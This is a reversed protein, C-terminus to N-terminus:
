KWDNTKLREQWKTPDKKEEFVWLSKLLLLANPCNPGIKTSLLTYHNVITSYREKFFSASEEKSLLDRMFSASYTQM